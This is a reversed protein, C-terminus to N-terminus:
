AKDETLQQTKPTVQEITTLDLPTVRDRDADPRFPQSYPPTVEPPGSEDEGYILQVTAIAVVDGPQLVWEDISSGNVRTGSTSDLDYLLYRGGRAKLQAHQRSVHPDELVLQNDLRRGITVLPTKLPFHRKGDIIFFAGVPPRGTVQEEDETALQPSIRSPDSSHWAIVRVEWRDLTPDTALTVHPDRLLELESEALSKKLALSINVQFEMGAGALTLYNDPHITLTYQDAAYVKKQRDFKASSAIEAAWQRAIDASSFEGETLASLFEDLSAKISAEVDSLELKV